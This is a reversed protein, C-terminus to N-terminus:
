HAGGLARRIVPVQDRMPSGERDRESAHECHGRAGRGSLEELRELFGRGRPLPMFGVAMNRILM